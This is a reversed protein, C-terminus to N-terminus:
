DKKSGSLVSKFIMLAYFPVYSLLHVLRTRLLFYIKMTVKPVKHSAAQWLSAYNTGMEETQDPFFVM